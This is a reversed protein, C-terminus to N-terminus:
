SSGEARAAMRELFSEAPPLPIARFLAKVIYKIQGHFPSGPFHQVLPRRADLASNTYDPDFKLYGAFKFPVDKRLLSAVEDKVEQFFVAAEELHVANVVVICIPVNNGRESLIKAARYVWGPTATGKTLFLVVGDAVAPLGEDPISSGRILVAGFRSGEARLRDRQRASSLSETLADLAIAPIAAATFHEFSRDLRDRTDIRISATSFPPSEMYVALPSRGMSSLEALLNELALTTFREDTNGAAFWAVADAFRPASATM